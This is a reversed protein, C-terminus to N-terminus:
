CLISLLTFLRLRLYLSDRWYIWTSEFQPLFSYQFQKCSIIRSSLRWLKVSYMICSFATYCHIGEVEVGSVYLRKNVYTSGHCHDLVLICISVPKFYNGKYGVWGGCGWWSCTLPSKWRRSMKLSENRLKLGKNTLNFIFCLVTLVLCKTLLITLGM